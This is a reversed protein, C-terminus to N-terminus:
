WKFFRGETTTTIDQNEQQAPVSCPQLLPSLFVLLLCHYEGGQCSIVLVSHKPFPLPSRERREQRSVEAPKWTYTHTHTHVGALLHWTGQAAEQWETGLLLLLHRPCHQHQVPARTCTVLSWCSRRTHCTKSHSGPSAGTSNFLQEKPQQGQSSSRGSTSTQRSSRQALAQDPPSTTITGPASSLRGLLCCPASEHPADLFPLNRPPLPCSGRLHAIIVHVASFSTGVLNMCHSMGDCCIM